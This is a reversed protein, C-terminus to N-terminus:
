PNKGELKKMREKLKAIEEDHQFVKGKLDAVKCVEWAESVVRELKSLSDGFRGTFDREDSM